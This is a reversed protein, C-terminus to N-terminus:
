HHVGRAIQPRTANRRRRLSLFAAIILGLGLMMGLSVIGNLLSMRQSYSSTAQSISDSLSIDYFFRDGARKVFPITAALSAGIVVIGALTLRNHNKM